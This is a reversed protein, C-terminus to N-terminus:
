SSTIALTCSNATTAAARSAAHVVSSGPGTPFVLATFGTVPDADSDLAPNGGQNVFTAVYDAPLTTLDFGIFYTAPVLNTFSYFGSADTTTTDLENSASDYLRVLVNVVGTEGGDQIGNRDTDYWVFDGLLAPLYLGADWTPDNQGSVLTILTSQGTVPDIDSDLDPAGINQPSVFYGPPVAVDIYYVGPILNTFAYAGAVDTTTVGLAINNSSFLTVVVGVIGTENGDQIGDANLDNWVFDGLSAPRDVLYPATNTQPPVPPQDPPTTPSTTVVNTRSAGM